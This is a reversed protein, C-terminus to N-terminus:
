SKALINKTYRKQMYVKYAIYLCLAQVANIVSYLCVAGLLGYKPVFVACLPLLMIGGTLLITFQVKFHRMITLANTLIGAVTNAIAGIVLVLLAIKYDSFDIGFVRNLIPEGVFYTAILGLVGLATAYMMIKAIIGKFNKLQNESYLQSLMVVNPHLIFTILLTLLTIPMAIIGFYGIQDEHFIDIFYRPINISLVAVLSMALIPSSKKMITVAETFRDHLKISLLKIQLGIIAKVRPVDFLIVVVINAFVLLLSSLLLNSTTVISATFLIFGLAAKLALSVGSLYLKGHVQLIGYLVDAVSEIVKMLALIMILTAKETSYGNVLVFVLALVMVLTGLMFRVMMYGRASFEKAADSVQYMRGGWMAITWLVVSVSFAFSFLGSEDIGNVRTVVILLLPSIANQFLVGLTNWFYDRKKITHKM